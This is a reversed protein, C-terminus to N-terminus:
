PKRRPVRKLGTDKYFPHETPDKAVRWDRDHRLLTDRGDLALVLEGIFRTNELFAGPHINELSDDPTHYFRKASSTADMASIEVCPIGLRAFHSHDSANWHTGTKEAYEKTNLSTDLVIGSKQATRRVIEDLELSIYNNGITIITQSENGLLECNLMVEIKDLPLPVATGQEKPVVPHRIYVRSGLGMVERRPDVDIEEADTILILLSRKLKVNQLRSAIHLYAAVASANDNAGTLVRPVDASPDEVGAVAAAKPKLESSVGSGQGDIHSILAIYQSKLKPDSGEKVAVINTCALSKYDKPIFVNRNPKIPGNYKTDGWVFEQRYTKFGYEQLKKDCYNIASISTASGPSRGDDATGVINEIHNMLQARDSRSLGHQDKEAQTACGALATCLLLAVVFIGQVPFPRRTKVLSPFSRFEQMTNGYLSAEFNSIGM